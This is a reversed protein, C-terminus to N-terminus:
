KGYKSRNEIIQRITSLSLKRGDPHCIGDTEQIDRLTCGSDRLRIIERAVAFSEPHKEVVGNKRYFGFPQRGGYKEKRRNMTYKLYETMKPDDKYAVHILEVGRGMLAGKIFYYETESMDQATVVVSCSGSYSELDGSYHEFILMNREDCYETVNGHACVMM